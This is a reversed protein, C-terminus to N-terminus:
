STVPIIQTEEYKQNETFTFIKFLYDNDETSKVKVILLSKGRDQISLSFKSSEQSKIEQFKEFKEFNKSLAIIVVKQDQKM